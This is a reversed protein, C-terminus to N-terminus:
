HGFFGRGEKDPIMYLTVGKQRCLEITPADGTISGSSTLITAVGRNALLETGDPFPFFPKGPPRATNANM